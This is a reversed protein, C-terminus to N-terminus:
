EKYKSVSQLSEIATLLNKDLYYKQQDHFSKYENIVGLAHLLNVNNSDFKIMYRSCDKILHLLRDKGFGLRTEPMTLGKEIVHYNRIIYSILKTKDNEYDLSASNKLYKERDYKYAKILQQRTYIKKLHYIIKPFKSKIFNKM